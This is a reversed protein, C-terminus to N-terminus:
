LGEESFPSLMDLISRATDEDFKLRLKLYLGHRTYRAAEFDEDEFGSFNYGLSIWLNDVPSVGVSPGWAYETTGNGPVHLISGHVGLDIHRTVDVRAEAGLLHTWGAYSTGGFESHVYKVGYHGAVQTRDGINTNAALNNVVKTTTEGLRSRDYKLDLRNLVVPGEVRPRWAMGLKVHGKVTDGEGTALDDPQGVQVRSTGAVSFKESLERSVSASMTHTDEGDALRTELRVSGATWQSRYGIGAYASTYDENLELPSEVEDPLVEALLVNGDLVTHNTFGVSASWNDDIKVQQDLGVTAGLRRSSDQTQVDSGFTVTGGTWPTLQIGASTIHSELEAGDRYEHTVNVTAWRNIVKTVGLTTRQPFAIVEDKDALPQEHSLTVTTRWEPISLRGSVTALTSQLKRDAGVIDDEVHRLGVKVGYRDTDQSVTADALARTSGDALNEEHYADVTASRTTIKGTDEDVVRDFEYRATVGARRAGSTASSQQGVGFGEGEERVYLEAAWKASRYSIEALWANAETEVGDLDTHSRAFEVRTEWGEAPRAVVDIGAVQKHSDAAGSDGGEHIYAGGITVRGELLDASARAGYTFNREADIETEYDVVIVNPNLGADSVPVPLRFILEGTLADLTYDLHRVLRTRELVIDPRFRDRTEIEITESNSLIPANSLQYSGSTGDAAIEDKAFGQNSEAGFAVVRFREGVYETKLGSLRRSYTTLKGDIINTDYDGFMAYFQNKEIKVYLPYRSPTELEQYTRDGYLTYYADPDIEEVFDADRNGRRKDTDVQLTLLWEGKVVGKAFFAVRGDTFVDDSDAGSGKGSLTEYGVTGEALGLVIWDRKEPKLYMEIPIQRGDDLNVLVNVRGTQLTPELRIRAIGDAGVTIGGQGSLPAVLENADEVERQVKLRYPAAINATMKRGAHVPRGADDEMRVALVPITRGDAVLVSQDVVPTARSAETVYWIDRTLREVESGDKARVSAIFTNRGERLDVGRWQSMLVRREKDADRGEFNEKAVPEGNLSLVVSQDAAHKIGINISPQSPTRSPNPYVWAPDVSQEALWDRGYQKYETQDNFRGVDLASALDGTRELYFNARWINGGQVDVFKSTARGAYRSNEECVMPTYGQPLTEKDVQVVHTGEAVGEFHYLGDADTV